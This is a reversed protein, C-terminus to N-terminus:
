DFRGTHCYRIFRNWRWQEFERVTETVANLAHMIIEEKFTGPDSFDDDTIDDVGITINIQM